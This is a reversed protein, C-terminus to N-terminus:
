KEFEHKRKKVNNLASSANGFEKYVYNLEEQQKKNVRKLEEIEEQRKKDVCKLKKITERQERIEDYSNNLEQRLIAKKRYNIEKYQRPPYCNWETGDDYLVDNIVDDYEKESIEKTNLNM